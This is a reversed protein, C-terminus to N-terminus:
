FFHCCLDILNARAQSNLSENKNLKGYISLFDHREDILSNFLMQDVDNSNSEINKIIGKQVELEFKILSSGYQFSNSFVYKPSYGYIWNWSQFKENSLISIKQIEEDNLNELVSRESQSLIKYLIIKLFKDTSFVTPLYNSINTVKSRVSKISKDIYKEPNNKLALSLNNLDTHYLLTGHSLVRNRYVHMANGSVKMNDILIDHRESFYANLGLDNLANLIPITYKEFSIKEVNSCNQIFSFNINNLDQYVTGGGSIRRALKINNEIAFLLNIESLLNQHKGVVICPENIYLLLIDENSNKLLYEESSLNFYPDQNDSVLLRM